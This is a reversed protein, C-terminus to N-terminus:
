EMPCVSQESRLISATEGAQLKKYEELEELPVGLFNARRSLQELKLRGTADLGDLGPPPERQPPRTTEHLVPIQSIEAVTM